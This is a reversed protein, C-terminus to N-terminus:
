MYYAIDNRYTPSSLCRGPSVSNTCNSMLCGCHVLEFLLNPAAGPAAEPAM